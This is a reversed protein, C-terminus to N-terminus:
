RRRSLEIGTAREEDILAKLRRDLEAALLGTWDLHRVTLKATREVM